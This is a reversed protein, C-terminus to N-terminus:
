KFMVSVDLIQQVDKSIGDTLTVLNEFCDTSLCRWFCVIKMQDDNSLEAM